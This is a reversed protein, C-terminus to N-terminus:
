LGNKTKGNNQLPSKLTAGYLWRLLRFMIKFQFM